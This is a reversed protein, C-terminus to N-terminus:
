TAVAAAGYRMCRYPIIVRCDGSVGARQDGTSLAL